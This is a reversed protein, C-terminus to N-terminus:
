RTANVPRGRQLVKEWTRGGDRSCSIDAGTTAVVVREGPGVALAVVPSDSGTYLGTSRWTAGGDISQVLGVGPQHVYAYARSPDSVHYSVATVAASAPVGAVASWTAGGDRSGRLGASTGALLPAAAAPSASLSWVNALGQAPLREVEWTRTSIRYLGPQGAVSWGLLQGGGQSSFTLAHFDARGKLAVSEWTRGGDRSVLLGLNGVKERAYTPVDPHGSAYVLRAEKPHATFGMLDFRHEGVWEPGGEPRLRVLGTHTAVYVVEPNQRDLALGHIHHIELPGGQSQAEGPASLLIGAACLM